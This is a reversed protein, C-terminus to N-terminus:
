RAYNGKAVSPSLSFTWSACLALHRSQAGKKLPHLTCFSIKLM